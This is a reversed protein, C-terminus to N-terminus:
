GACLETEFNVMADTGTERKVKRFCLSFTPALPKGVELQTVGLKSVELKGVDLKEKKQSEFM